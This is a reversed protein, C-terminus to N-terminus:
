LLKLTKFFEDEFNDIHLFNLVKLIAFFNFKSDYFIISCILLQYNLTKYM